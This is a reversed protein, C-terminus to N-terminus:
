LNIRLGMELGMMLPQVTRISKPQSSGFYYRLSPDIYLGLHKGLLFEVGLGVSASCQLGNVKERHVIGSGLVDYRDSICKEVSGGLYTYFNLHDKNVIDYYVNVPIGIYHQSNRIDSEPIVTINGDSGINTYTGKFRRSLLTYNAGVGLSWRPSFRFKVGAGVSVPLGYASEDKTQKVGTTPNITSISPLRTAGRGNNNQVSNTSAIGSLVISTKIKKRVNEDEEQWEEFESLAIDAAKQIETDPEKQVTEVSEELSEGHLQPQAEGTSVELRSDSIGESIYGDDTMESLGAPKRVRGADAIYVTEKNETPIVDVSEPLAEPEAVVAIMDPGSSEPIINEPGEWDIILGVAVAAAVASAIAVRRFWLTVPKKEAAAIKDLEASVGEWVHAPAEEQADSLISKLQIEFDSINNDDFM